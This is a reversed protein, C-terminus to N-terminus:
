CFIKQRLNYFRKNIFKSSCVQNAKNLIRRNLFVKYKYRHKRNLLPTFIDGDMIGCYTANFEKPKTRVFERDHLLSTKAFNISDILDPAVSDVITEFHWKPKKNGCSTALLTMLGIAILLWSKIFLRM